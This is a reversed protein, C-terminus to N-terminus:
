WLPIVDRDRGPMDGPILFVRRRTQSYFFKKLESGRRNFTLSIVPPRILYDAPMEQLSDVDMLSHSGCWEGSGTKESPHTKLNGELFKFLIWSWIRISMFELFILLFSWADTPSIEVMAVAM